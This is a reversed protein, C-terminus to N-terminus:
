WIISIQMNIVERILNFICVVIGETEGTTSDMSSKFDVDTESWSGKQWGRPRSFTQKRGIKLELECKHECIHKHEHECVNGWGHRHEYKPQHMPAKKASGHEMRNRSLIHTLSLIHFRLELYKLGFCPWVIQHVHSKSCIQYKTHSISQMWFFNSFSPEPYSSPNSGMSGLEVGTGRKDDASWHDAARM